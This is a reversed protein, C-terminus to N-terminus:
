TLKHVILAQFIENLKDSFNDFFFFFESKSNLWVFSKPVLGTKNNGHCYRHCHIQNVVM